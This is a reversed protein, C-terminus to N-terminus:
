KNRTGNASIMANSTDEDAHEIQATTQFSWLDVRSYQVGEILGKEWEGRIANAMKPLHNRKGAKNGGIV